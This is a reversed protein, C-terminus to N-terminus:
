NNLNDLISVKAQTMGRANRSPQATGLGENASEIKEEDNM